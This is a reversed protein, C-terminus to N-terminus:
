FHKDEEKKLWGLATVHHTTNWVAVLLWSIRKPHDIQAENQTHSHSLVQVKKSPFGVTSVTPHWEDTCMHPYSSANVALQCM